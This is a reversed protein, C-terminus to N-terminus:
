PRRGAARSGALEAFERILLNVKVPDRAVPIHGAGELVVLSGGTAEALAASWRRPSLQDSGGHVVLVPCRVGACWGRLTAEDPQPAPEGAVLVEPSTELGWGVCDEVQKTSHPENFCQSFFFELFDQYHDLWYYRNYKAWGETSTYPEDFPPGPDADGQGMDLSPGVFVGGLVRDARKAMLWLAWQAAMSLSVVVARDTGTADLVAAAAQGQAEYGYPRPDEPRDSRGNGPGDYTVVRFHRALYPVQAKWFRSHVVTWTPLLLLTPEGDGFVEYHLKVGDRDVFGDGDPERARM